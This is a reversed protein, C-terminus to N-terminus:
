GNGRNQQQATAHRDGLTLGTLGDILPRPGASAPTAISPGGAGTAGATTDRSSAPRAVTRAEAEALRQADVASEVFTDVADDEILSKM